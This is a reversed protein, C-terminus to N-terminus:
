IAPQYPLSVRRSGRHLEAKGGRNVRVAGLVFDAGMRTVIPSSDPHITSSLGNRPKVALIWHGM